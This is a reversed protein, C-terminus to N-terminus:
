VVPTLPTHIENSINGAESAISLDSIRERMLPKKFTGTTAAVQQRHHQGQAWVSVEESSSTFAVERPPGSSGVLTSIAASLLSQLSGLNRERDRRPAATQSLSGERLGRDM